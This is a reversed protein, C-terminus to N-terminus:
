YKGEDFVFDLIEGVFSFNNKTVSVNTGGVFCLIEVQFGLACM